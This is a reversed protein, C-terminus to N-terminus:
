ASIDPTHEGFQVYGPTRQVFFHDAMPETPWRGDVILLFGGVLQSNILLKGGM